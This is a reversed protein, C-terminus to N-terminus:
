LGFSAAIKKFEDSYAFGRFVEYRSDGEQLRAVWAKLGAEDYSRDLFTKYLVKVYEEDSLNKAKFENSFVFGYAVEEPTEAKLLLQNAWANLGDQDPKRGLVKDYCRFVFM